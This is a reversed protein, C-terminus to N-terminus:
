TNRLPHHLSSEGESYDPMVTHCLALLRFFEQAEKNGAEVQLGWSLLVSHARCWVSAENFLKQDYFEFTPESFDNSSFDM